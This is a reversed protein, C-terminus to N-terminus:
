KSSRPWLFVDLQNPRKTNMPTCRASESGLDGKESPSYTMENLMLNPSAKLLLPQVEMIRKGWWDDYIEISKRTRILVSQSPRLERITGPVETSGYFSDGLTLIQRSDPDTLTLILLATRYTYPRTPDSPELDGLHPSWPIEISHRGTNEVKVEFTVEEGISYERKDLSVLTVTTEPIATPDGGGSGCFGGTGGGTPSHIRQRPLPDTLDLYGGEQALVALAALAVGAALLVIRMRAM